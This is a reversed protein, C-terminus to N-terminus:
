AKYISLGDATVVGDDEKLVHQEVVDLPLCMIAVVTLAQLFGLHSSGADFGDTSNCYM